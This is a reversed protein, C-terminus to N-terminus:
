KGIDRMFSGAIGLMLGIWGLPEAVAGLGFIWKLAAAALVFAIGTYVLRRALKKNTHSAFSPADKGPNISQSTQVVHIVGGIVLIAVGCWFLVAGGSPWAWMVFFSVMVVSLGFLLFQPGISHRPEVM